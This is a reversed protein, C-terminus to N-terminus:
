MASKQCFGEDVLFLKVREYENAPFIPQTSNGQTFDENWIETFRLLAAIYYEKEFKWSPLKRNMKEKNFVMWSWGGVVSWLTQVMSLLLLLLVPQFFIEPKKGFEM